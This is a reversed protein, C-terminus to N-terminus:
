PVLLVIVSHNACLPSTWSGLSLVLVDTNDATIIVAKFGSEAAHLAHLLMRTDAEEQSSKLQTVGM